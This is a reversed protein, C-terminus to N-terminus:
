LKEIRFNEIKLRKDEEFVLLIALKKEFFALTEGEEKEIHQKIESHCIIKLKQKKGPLRWGSPSFNEAKLFLDATITSLSKKRGLGHCLPCIETIFHSLSSGQRKRTIQVMGLEGMPFVRPHSKDGKFARELCATVKKGGEPDEMDVFDVLIIGGLGRLRVQEVIVKAAELNLQVISQSLNRRGSFRGSNVDIVSFAELEEFVLFGGNKLPVKQQQAKQVQFELNFNELLAASGKYHEVKGALDPRFSKLWKTIKRYTEREDVVFRESRLSLSDRLFVLLPDEGQRIQGLEKRNKFLTQIGEWQQKLSDLDRKLEEKTREEAFTRVLLAGKPENFTKVIQSLRRREEFSDIQRSLASKSRQGPLWVLYLGALGIEMSLRVGKNDRPDTKVQVLIERGPKLVKSVDKERGPLDKGYLFGARELGLEVFAFNLNKTIKVVRGKYLAGVLSPSERRHCFIQRLVGGEACAVRTQYPRVNIFTEVAM